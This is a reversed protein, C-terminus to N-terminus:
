YQWHFDPEDDLSSRQWRVPAPDLIEGTWWANLRDISARLVASDVLLSRTSSGNGTEGILAYCDPNTCRYIHVDQYNGVHLALHTKCIMCRINDNRNGWPLPFISDPM